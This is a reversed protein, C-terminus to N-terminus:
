STRQNDGDHGRRHQPYEEPLTKAADPNFINLDTPLQREGERNTLPSLNHQLNPVATSSRQMDSYGVAARYLQTGEILDQTGDNACVLLLTERILDTRGLPSNM